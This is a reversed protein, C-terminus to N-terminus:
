SCLALGGGGGGLNLTKMNTFILIAVKLTTIDQLRTLVPVYQVLVESSSVEQM